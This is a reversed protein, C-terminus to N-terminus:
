PRFPNGVPIELLSSIVRSPIVDEFAHIPVGTEVLVGFMGARQAAAVDTLIQDGVAVTRDPRSGLMELAIRPMHSEPKGIVEPTTLHRTAAEVAAVLTGAGPDLEGGEPILRDPNTAIFHAGALIARVATRLKVYTLERDLGIVVIDPKHSSLVFGTEEIERSLAPAGVVYVILGQEYNEVLYRATAYATNVIQEPDAAFGMRTLKAAFDARSKTSNNTMFVTPVASTRFQHLAQIASEIPVDGRYITGDLDLVLGEIPDPWPQNEFNIVAGDGDRWQISLPALLM